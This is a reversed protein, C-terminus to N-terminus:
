ASPRGRGVLAAVAALWLLAPALLLWRFDSHLAFNVASMLGVGSAGAVALAVVVRPGRLSAPQVALLLTLAGAAAMFGGMVTFVKRLWAALGPVSRQIEEMALGIYRPDEPLLPPRILIFYIGLGVLWVGCAFLLARGARERRSPVEDSM